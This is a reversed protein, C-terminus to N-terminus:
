HCLLHYIYYGTHKILGIVTAVDDLVHVTEAREFAPTTPEFGVRPM